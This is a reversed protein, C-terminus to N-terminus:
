WSGGLRRAAELGSRAGDEHFGWGLHAGAFALRPGGAGRLRAAAAVAAPTFVPHRYTMEAVLAAPDVREPANLTVVLDDATDLGQLHNMWYSVLVASAGTGCTEKRYNWSGRARRLAPLVSGDRHLWTTNASYGIAALDAKEEPTADALVALADDAHTALVVQDFRAAGGDATRVVVHDEERAVAVVPTAARVDELTAAVRDVYTRSGGVVTRWTPSGGITLMGHNELFRFLHRAPYGLADDDGSSWVCAVLPVAFHEVFYQSYGGQDLFQGWTLDTSADDLVARADRHFRPVEALMRLYRPDALRRRQAFLGRAGRAGAYQLGCGACTVSMSMETPRTQIGLERFLSLLTPYTRENHVIFGSDVAVRGGESTAVDHTHAHGGLRGDAEFLTVEHTHRLVYAATLGSVGSGVVAVSPRRAPGVPTTDAAPASM